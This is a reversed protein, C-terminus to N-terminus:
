RRWAVKIHRRRLMMYQRRRLGAIDRPLEEAIPLTTDDLLVPIM